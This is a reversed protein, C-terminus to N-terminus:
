LRSQFRAPLKVKKQKRYESQRVIKVGRDGARDQEEQTNKKLSEATSLDRQSKM